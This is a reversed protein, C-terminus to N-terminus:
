PPSLEEPLLDPRARLLRTVHRFRGYQYTSDTEVEVVLTPEVRTVPRRLTSGWSGARSSVDPPWPHTSTVSQLYGAIELRHAPSLPTTSGAVLLQGDAAPQGLILREPAALRGIVGGVLVETSSYARLKLWGRKGPKYQHTLPKVILGEIGVDASAYDDFWQQAVARDRTAPTIQLPPALSPLISELVRRRARFPEGALERGRHQLVDFMVFSAPRARALAPARAPGAMRRLLQSFDLRTGDWVVLEGDVLTGPALQSAAATAIDPFAAVLNTGTRSRIQVQGRTDVGVLARVGDWKPEFSAGGPLESALPLHEVAKCLMPEVPWSLGRSPEPSAAARSAM